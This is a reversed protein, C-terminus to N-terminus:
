ILFYNLTHNQLQSSSFNYALTLNQIVEIKNEMKGLGILKLSHQIICLQLFYLLSAGYYYLLSSSPSSLTRAFLYFLLEGTGLLKYFFM